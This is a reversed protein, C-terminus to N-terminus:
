YKEYDFIAFKLNIKNFFRFDEIEYKNEATAMNAEWNPTLCEDLIKVRDFSLEPFQKFLQSFVKNSLHELLRYECIDTHFNEGIMIIISDKYQFDIIGNKVQEELWMSKKFDNLGKFVVYDKDLLEVFYHCPLDKYLLDHYFYEQWIGWTYKYTGRYVIPDIYVGKRKFSKAQVLIVYQTKLRKQRYKKIKYM